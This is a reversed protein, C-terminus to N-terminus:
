GPCRLSSFSSDLTSQFWWGTITILISSLSSIYNSVINSAVMMCGDVLSTQDALATAILQGDRLVHESKVPQGDVTVRGAAISAEWTRLDDYRHGGQHPVSFCGM